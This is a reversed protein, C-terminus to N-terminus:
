LKLAMGEMKVGKIQGKSNPSCMIYPQVFLLIYLTGKMTRDLIERTQTPKRLSFPYILLDSMVQHDLIGVSPM